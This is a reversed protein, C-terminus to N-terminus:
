PYNQHSNTGNTIAFVGRQTFSSGNDSTEIAFFDAYTGSDYFGIKLSNISPPTSFETEDFKVQIWNNAASAGLGWWMAYISSSSDFAKYPSYSGYNHGASITYYNNGSTDTTANSMNTPHSTGSQGPSEYFRMNWIGIRDNHNAGAATTGRIRIYRSAPIGSVNYTATAAASQINAGFDQAKVSLTRTGSASNLDTFTMTDSLHDANSELTHAVSTDAVTTTAGVAASCQYNPNTYSSHNTVQVTTVGFLGETVSITPTTTATGGGSVSQTTFFGDVNDIKDTAVGSIEGM